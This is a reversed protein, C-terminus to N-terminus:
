FSDATTAIWWARWGTPAPEAGIFIFVSNAKVRDVAGTAHCKISIEELRTGGCVEEVSAGTQVEINGDTRHPRDPVQVHNGRAVRRAGADSCAACLLSTCRRRGPPTPAGWLICSRMRARGRRWSGRETTFAPARCATWAPIGLRRWQLGTAIVLAHCWVETGNSLKLYRYPGDIRLSEVEQPALIEVQFRRAQTVARQTLDSGSIGTPFGLYNEIRSSLGAQGGPAEREIM